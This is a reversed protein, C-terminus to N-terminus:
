IEETNNEQELVCCAACYHDDMCGSSWRSVSDHREALVRAEHDQGARMARCTCKGFYSLSVARESLHHLSQKGTLYGGDSGSLM